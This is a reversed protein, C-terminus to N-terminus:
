PREKLYDRLAERWPRMPGGTLKEFHTTDLVSNAPRRAPRPFEATTCPHVITSLGAQGVIERAFEYWTCTGANAAHVIGDAGRVILATIAEALDPAYTPRGRQDNVVKFEPRTRAAHLITAVFNPGAPGFVWST